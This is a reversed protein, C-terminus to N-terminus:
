ASASTNFHKGFAEIDEAYVEEIRNRLAADIAPDPLHGTANAVPPLPLDLGSRSALDTRLAEIESMGYLRDFATADRGLFCVQADTHHAVVRSAARYGDLAMVFSHFDPDPQLKAAVLAPGARTLSLAGHQRVKNKWASVLRVVPDRVIAFRWLGKSTVLHEPKLWTTGYSQGGDSQRHIRAFRPPEGPLRRRGFFAGNELFYMLEKCTTCANKPVAFYALGHRQSIIPV